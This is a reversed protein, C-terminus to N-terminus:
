RGWVRMTLATSQYGCVAIKTSNAYLIIPHQNTATYYDTYAMIATIGPTVTELESQAKSISSIDPFIAVWAHVDYPTVGLNHEFEFCTNPKLVFWDSLAGVTTVDPQRVAMAGGVGFSLALAMVVLIMWVKVTKIKM